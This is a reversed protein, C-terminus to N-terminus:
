MPWTHSQRPTRGLLFIPALHAAHRTHAQVFDKESLTLMQGIDYLDASSYGYRAAEASVAEMAARDLLKLASAAERNIKGVTTDHLHRLAQEVRAQPSPPLPPHLPLAM